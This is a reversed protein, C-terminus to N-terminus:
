LVISLIRELTPVIISKLLSYSLLFLMVVGILIYVRQIIQNAETGDMIKIKTLMIFVNYVTNISSYFVADIALLIWYFMEKIQDILCILM